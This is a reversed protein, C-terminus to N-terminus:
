VQPHEKIQDARTLVNVTDTQACSIILAKKLRQIFLYEEFVNRYKRSIAYYVILNSASASTVFLGGFLDVHIEEFQLGAIKTVMQVVIASIWGFVMTFSIVLLSRYIQRTSDHDAAKADSEDRGGHLCSQM